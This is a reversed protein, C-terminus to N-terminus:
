KKKLAPLGSPLEIIIKGAPVAEISEANRLDTSFYYLETAKCCDRVVKMMHLFYEKGKSNKVSFAM